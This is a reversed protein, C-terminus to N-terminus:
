YKLCRVSYGENMFGANEVFEESDYLLLYTKVGKRGVVNANENLYAVNVENPSWWVCMKGIDVFAGHDDRYGSPLATFGSENTAGKNPTVWHATGTEKLEGGSVDISDVLYNHLTRWETIDPLHWGTPCVNKATELSYLYGYTTVNKSNNNYAWCGSGTKYALNEAMWWQEGIKVINYSQGDRPDIFSSTTQTYSIACILLCLGLQILKKM